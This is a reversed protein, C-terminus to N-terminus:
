KQGGQPMLGLQAMFAMNDYYVSLRKIKGKETGAVAVCPGQARKGTAPITQGGANIPGTHTASWTLEDAIWDGSEIRRVLHLNADSFSKWNEQYHNMVAKRGTIPAPLAAEWYVVDDALHEGIAAVDHANVAKEFADALAGPTGTHSSM